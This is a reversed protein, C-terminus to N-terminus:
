DRRRHWGPHEGATREDFACIIRRELDSLNGLSGCCPEATHARTQNMYNVQHLDCYVPVMNQAQVLRSEHAQHPKHLEKARTFNLMKCNDDDKKTNSDATYVISNWYQLPAQQQHDSDHTVCYRCDM